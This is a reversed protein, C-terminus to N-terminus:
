IDIDLTDSGVIIVVAESVSADGPKSKTGIILCEYRENVLPCVVNSDPYTEGKTSTCERLM